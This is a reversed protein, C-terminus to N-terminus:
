VIKELFFVEELWTYFKGNGTKSINIYSWTGFEISIFDEEGEKKKIVGKIQSMPISVTETILYLHEEITRFM